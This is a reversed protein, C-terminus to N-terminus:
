EGTEKEDFWKDCETCYASLTNHSLQLEENGCDPCRPTEPIREIQLPLPGEGTSPNMGRESCYHMAFSEVLAPDIDVTIAPLTTFDIKFKM